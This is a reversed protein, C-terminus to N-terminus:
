QNVMTLLLSPMVAYGIKNNPIGNKHCIILGLLFRLKVNPIENTHTGDSSADDHILIEFGFDTKQSLISELCEVIYSEHNYSLCCISVVCTKDHWTTLIADEILM